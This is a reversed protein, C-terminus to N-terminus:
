GRSRQWSEVGAQAQINGLLPEGDHSIALGAHEGHGGGGTRARRIKPTIRVALDKHQAAAQHWIQFAGQFAADLTTAQEVTLQMEELQLQVKRSGDAALTAAAILSINFRIM